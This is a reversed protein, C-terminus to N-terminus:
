NQNIISQFFNDVKENQEQHAESEEYDNDDVGVNSSFNQIPSAPSDESFSNVHSAQFTSHTSSFSPSSPPLSTPLGSHGLMFNNLLTKPVGISPPPHGLGISSVRSGAPRHFTTPLTPSDPGNIPAKGNGRKQVDLGLDGVHSNNRDATMTGLNSGLQLSSPPLISHDDGMHGLDNDFFESNRGYLPPITPSSTDSFTPSKSVDQQASNAAEQIKLRRFVQDTSEVQIGGINYKSNNMQRQELSLDDSSGVLGAAGLGQSRGSFSPRKSDQQGEQKMSQELVQYQQSMFDQFHTKKDRNKRYLGLSSAIANSAGGTTAPSEKSFEKTKEEEDDNEQPHLQSIESEYYKVASEPEPKESEEDKEQSEKHSQNKTPRAPKALARPKAHGSTRGTTEFSSESEETTNEFVEQNGSATKSLVAGKNESVPRKVEIDKQWNSIVLGIDFGDRLAMIKGQSDWGAPIVIKDITVVSPYSREIGQQNQNLSM